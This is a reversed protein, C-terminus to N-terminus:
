CSYVISRLFFACVSPLIIHVGSSCAALCDMRVWRRRRFDSIGFGLTVLSFYTRYASSQSMPYQPFFPSRTRIRSVMAWNKALSLRFKDRSFVRIVFVLAWRALNRPTSMLLIAELLPVRRTVLVRPFFLLSGAPLIQIVAGIAWKTFLSSSM